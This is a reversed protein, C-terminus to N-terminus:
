IFTKIYCVFAFCLNENIQHRDTRKIIACWECHSNPSNLEDALNWKDVWNLNLHILIFIFGQTKGGARVWPFEWWCSCSILHTTENENDNNGMWNDM